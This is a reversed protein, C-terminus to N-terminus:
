QMPIFDFSEIVVEVDTGNAPPDAVGDKNDDYLWLSIRATTTPSPAPIVVPTSLTALDARRAPNSSLFQWNALRLNDDIDYGLYSAFNVYSRAWTIVHTSKPELLVMFTSSSREPYWGAEVDPGHTPQVSYHLNKLYGGWRTIEIDLESLAGTDFSNDDWTFFGLVANRDLTDPRGAVRFVYTGYGFQGSSFIESCLWKGDRRSIKMHLKKDADVWVDREDSSYYNPGAAQPQTTKRAEWVYGSFAFYRHDPTSPPVVPDPRTVTKEDSGGCGAFTLATVLTLAFVARFATKNRHSRCLSATKM